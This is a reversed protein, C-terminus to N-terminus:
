HKLFPFSTISQNARAVLYYSGPRLAGLQFTLLHQGQELRQEDRSLHVKGTLDMIQFSINLEANLSLELMIKEDAPDPYLRHFTIGPIEREQTNTVANVILMRLRQNPSIGDTVFLTDGFTTAVIGTPNEFTASDFPGNEQGAQGTGTLIEAAGNEPDIQYIRHNGFHCVYLRNMVWTLYALDPVQDIVFPLSALVTMEKTPTVKIIEGTFMNAVYLNGSADNTIGTPWFLPAGEVFTEKTGDPFIKIISHNQNTAIYLAGDTTMTIGAPGSLNNEIIEILNDGEKFRGIWGNDYSCVYINLSDDVEIAGVTIDNTVLVTDIVGTNPNIKRIYNGGYHSSYIHGDVSFHMDDGVNSSIITSVTQSCVFEMSFCWLIILALTRM